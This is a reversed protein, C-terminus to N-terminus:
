CILAKEYCQVAEGHRKLKQLALGKYALAIKTPNRAIIKDFYDISEEYKGTCFLFIGEDYPLNAEETLFKEIDKRLSTDQM